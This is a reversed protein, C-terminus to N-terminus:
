TRTLYLCNKEIRWIVASRWQCSIPTRDTTIGNLDALKAFAIRRGVSLYRASKVVIGSVDSDIIKARFVPRRRWEDVAEVTNLVRRASM